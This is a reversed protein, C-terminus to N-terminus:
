SVVVVVVFLRESDKSVKQLQSNMQGRKYLYSSFFSSNADKSQNRNRNEAGARIKDRDATM